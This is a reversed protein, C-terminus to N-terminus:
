QGDALRLYHVPPHERIPRPIFVDEGTDSFLPMTNNESQALLESFAFDRRKVLGGSFVTWESFVIPEGEEGAKKLTLADGWVINRELIYSIVRSFEDSSFLGFLEVYRNLFLNALRHRCERVNDELIDIGYLSSVVTVAYQEYEIQSRAYREAIKALKRSLVEVLFNGTGCAPELFRSEPRETEPKVLDLMANVERPATFVEGHAAVRAKTKIQASQTPPKKASV